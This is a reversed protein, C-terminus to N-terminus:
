GSRAFFRKPMIRDIKSDDLAGTGNSLWEFLPSAEGETFCFAETFYQCFVNKVLMEDPHHSLITKLLESPKCGESAMSRLEVVVESKTGFM